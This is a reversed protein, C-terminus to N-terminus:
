KAGPDQPISPFRLDPTSEPSSIHIKRSPPHPLRTWICRRKQVSLGWDWSPVENKCGARLESYCKIFTKGHSILFYIQDKDQMGSVSRSFGKSHGSYYSCRKNKMLLGPNGPPATTLFGGALAPSVPEIGPGPLDWM